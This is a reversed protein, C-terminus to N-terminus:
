HFAGIDIKVDGRNENSGGGVPVSASCRTRAAQIESTRDNVNRSIVVFEDIRKPARVSVNGDLFVGNVGRSITAANEYNVPVFEVGDNLIRLPQSIQAIGSVM